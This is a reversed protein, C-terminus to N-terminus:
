RRGARSFGLFSVLCGVAACGAGGFLFWKGATTNTIVVSGGQTATALIFTTAFWGVGPMLGGAPNRMGWAGLVCTALIGAAFLVAALPVPGRSYQFSGILAQLLGFVLLLLYTALAAARGGSGGPRGARPASGNREAPQGPESTM